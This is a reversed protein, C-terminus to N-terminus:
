LVAPGGDAPPTVPEPVPPVPVPLIEGNSWYFQDAVVESSCPVWFLPPAVPFTDQEVEAVRSGLLTEDYSYVPENPSILAQM